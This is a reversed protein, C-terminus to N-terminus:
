PEIRYFTDGVSFSSVEEPTVFYFGQEVEYETGHSRVTTLTVLDTCTPSINISIINYYGNKGAISILRGVVYNDKTIVRVTYDENKKAVTWGWFHKKVTITNGCIEWHTGDEWQGSFTYYYIRYNGTDIYTSEDSVGAAMASTFGYSGNHIAFPLIATLVTLALVVVWFAIQGILHLKKNKVVIVEEPATTAVDEQSIDYLNKLADMSEPNPLGLGNEWKAVTSRSVFLAEALQAQTLGREQRLKKLKDKMEM